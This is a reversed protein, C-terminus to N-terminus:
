EKITAPKIHQPIFSRDVLEVVRLEEPRMGEDGILKRPVPFLIAPLTIRLSPEAGRFGYDRARRLLLRGPHQCILTARWGGAASM